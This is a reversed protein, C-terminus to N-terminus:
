CCGDFLGKEQGTGMKILPQPPEDGPGDEAGM